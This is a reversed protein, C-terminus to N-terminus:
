FLGQEALPQGSCQRRGWGFASHGKKNPFPRREELFRDHNFRDPDPFDKSNHHISWVNGAIWTGEPITYDEYVDDRIPAHPIGGLITVTRWRLSESVIAGCYPMEDKDTWDPMRNQGVIRNIEEYAKKQVDPFACMAFIFSITTSATTDVGGGILNGTLFAIENDSLNTEKQEQILMTSFNPLTSESAGEHALSTFFAKIQASSDKMKSALPYLIKPLGLMFPLSEMMFLGPIAMDVGEMFKLAVRAVTDDMKDIRRGFGVSSVVSVSYREIAMVFDEPRKLLDGVLIKIENDQIPRHSRVAQSGVVNHMLRRHHRWMDGYPLVAQDYQTADRSDGLMTMRPRSSYVNSRKDLIESISWADHFFIMPRHGRWITIPSSDYKKSQEDMWLWPRPLRVQFHNGVLPWPFPGPPLKQRLRLVRIYDGLTYLTSLILIYSLIDTLFHIFPTNSSM